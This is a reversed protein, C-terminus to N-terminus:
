SAEKRGRLRRRLLHNAGLFAAGLVVFAIGRSIFSLDSDFFRVLILLALLAVGRNAHAGHDRRLGDVILVIGFAALALNVLLVAVWRELGFAVAPFLGVVVLAIGALLADDIARRRLARSGLVFVTGLAAFGLAGLIFDQAGRATDLWLEPRRAEGWPDEWSLLFALGLLGLTGGRRLPLAHLEAPAPDRGLLALVGFLLAYAVIWVGHVGTPLSAGTGFILAGVLAWGLLISRGSSARLGHRALFLAPALLALLGWFGAQTTPHENAALAWGAAIGLEFALPMAADVAYVLPLALLFWALLFGEPSGPFQYTQAVLAMSAATALVLATTSGERWAASEPRKWMSWAVLGQAIGLPTFALITRWGRSMEDWNHALVLIIGGGVLLAGLAAFIVERWPKINELRPAYHARLREASAADLVEAAVLEDLEDLLPRIHSTKM